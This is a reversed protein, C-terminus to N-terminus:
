QNEKFNCVTIAQLLTYCRNFTFGAFFCKSAWIHALHVLISSLILNKTMEELEPSQNEQFNCLIIAQFM